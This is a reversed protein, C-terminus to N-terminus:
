SLLLSLLLGREDVDARHTDIRLGLSDVDLHTTTTKIEKGKEVKKERERREGRAEWKKQKPGNKERGEGFVFFVAWERSQSAQPPVNKTERAKSLSFSHVFVSAYFSSIKERVGGEGGFRFFFKFFFFLCVGLRLAHGDSRDVPHVHVDANEVVRDRAGDVRGHPLM